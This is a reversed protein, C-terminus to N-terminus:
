HLELKRCTFDLVMTRGAGIDTGLIGDLGSVEGAPQDFAKLQDFTLTQGGVALEVGEVLTADVTEYGGAGGGTHPVAEGARDPFGILFNNYLHTHQAGTDLGLPLTQGDVVAPVM